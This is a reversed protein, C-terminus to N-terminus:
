ARDRQFTNDNGKERFNTQDHLSNFFAVFGELALLIMPTKDNKREISNM